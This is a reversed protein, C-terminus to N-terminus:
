RPSKRAHRINPRRQALMERILRGLAREERLPEFLDARRACQRRLHDLWQPEDRSRELALALGPADGVAFYGDYDAGLMGRNGPIDSAIVPTGSLVAELVAHAGGEVRSPHVLVHARQIWRLTQAHPRAGLWTYGACINTTRRAAAALRADLGAGIHDIRIDPRNCLLRAAAQLTQPLKEDRLHGVTVVRLRLATKELTPRRVGSQYIVRTKGRVAPPLALLGQDQLVILADALALSRRASADTAIDGYLDTGTLAVILPGRYGTVHSERPRAWRAISEASRRAHLAVLLDLAEGQWSPIVRVNFRSALQRAWRDATRGNGNNAGPLAPSVIGITSRQM